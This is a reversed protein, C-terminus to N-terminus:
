LRSLVTRPRRSSALPPILSDITVCFEPCGLLVAGNLHQSVEIVLTLKGNYVAMSIIRVPPYLRVDRDMRDCPLRPARLYEKEMTLFFRLVAGGVLNMRYVM